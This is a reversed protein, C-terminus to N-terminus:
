PSPTGVVGKLFWNMGLLDDDTVQRGEPIRINGAQDLVPGAFISFKDSILDKKKRLVKERLKEPVMPGLPAIDVVGQKLGWWINESKWTGSLVM